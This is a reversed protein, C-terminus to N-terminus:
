KGYRNYRRLKKHPESILNERRILDREINSRNNKIFIPEEKITAPVTESYGASLPLDRRWNNINVRSQSTLSQFGAEENMLRQMFRPARLSEISEPKIGTMSRINVTRIHRADAITKSNRAVARVALAGVAEEASNRLLGLLRLAMHGTPDTKNVPDSGCYAYANIGGNGFPSLTDPTAFRLIDTSYIRYGNGLFYCNIFPEKLQSAFAIGPEEINGFTTYSLRKLNKYMLKLHPSGIQDPGFLTTSLKTILPSKM